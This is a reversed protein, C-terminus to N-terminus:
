KSDLFRVKSGLGHSHQAWKDVFDAASAGAGGKKGRSSAVLNKKNEAAMEQENGDNEACFGHNEACFGDNETCFGHNELVQQM